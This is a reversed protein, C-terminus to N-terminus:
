SSFILLNTHKSQVGWILNCEADSQTFFLQVCNCFFQYQGFGATHPCTESQHVRLFLNCDQIWVCSSSQLYTFHCRVHPLLKVSFGFNPPPMKEVTPHTQPCRWIHVARLTQTNQQSFCFTHLTKIKCFAEPAEQLLQQNKQPIHQHHEHKTQDSFHVSSSWFTTHVCQM